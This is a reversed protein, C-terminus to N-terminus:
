CAASCVAAQMRCPWSDRCPEGADFLVCYEPQLLYAFADFYWCHSDLKGKNKAKTAFMVQLPPYSEIGAHKKYRATYEFLHLATPAGLVENQLVVPSFFGQVTSAALVSEDANGIGDQIICVAVETWDLGKRGDQAVYNDYIVELNQQQADPPM